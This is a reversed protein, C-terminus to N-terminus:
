AAVEKRRPQGAEQPEPVPRGELGVHRVTSAATREASIMADPAMDMGAAVPARSRDRQEGWGFTGTSIEYLLGIVVPVTFLGIAVLGFAGIDRYITAWPFLFIIEIDFVIFIMAVLYFHVPFREPLSRGPVIGCEYPARKDVTSRRPALLRSVLLSVTAFVIALLMMVVVPLYQGM